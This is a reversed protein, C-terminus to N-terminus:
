TQVIREPNKCLMTKIDDSTFGHKLLLKIFKIMAEVPHEKGKVGRDTTMIINKPGILRISSIFTTEDIHKDAIVNWQKEVIVGLKALEIQVNIPVITRYWDPHTLIMNVGRRTGERCLLMTEQLGLHGTALYANYKNIVDMVDYVQYILKNKDDLIKIGQRNFFDGNMKGYMLSNASDRTPMWVIKGGLKLASEVAFPNIGGVPWNLSISGYAVTTDSVGSYLNVIIARGSTPEYHNKIIVGSMGHTAAERVLEFDDLNRNIHSPASHTHLDYGGELLELVQLRLTESM